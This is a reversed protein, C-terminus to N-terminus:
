IELKNKKSPTDRKKGPTGAAKLSLFKGMDKKLLIDHQGLVPEKM